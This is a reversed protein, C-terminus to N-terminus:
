FVWGPAQINMLQPSDIAGRAGAVSTEKRLLQGRASRTAVISSLSGLSGSRTIILPQSFSKNLTKAFTANAINFVTRSGIDMHVFDTDGTAFLSSVMTLYVDGDLTQIGAQESGFRNGFVCAAMTINGSNVVMWRAKPINTIFICGTIRLAADECILGGRNDFNVSTISGTTRGNESRYFVASRELEFFVSDSVHFDDCRGSRIGEAAGDNYVSRQAKTLGFPWVHLKSIKVSDLAGDIWIAKDFASIELDDITAGGSNGRMDLAIRAREIRLRSLKFRPVARASIASPYPLLRARDAVDPQAFRIAIDRLEGGPEPGKLEIVGASSSSFEHDVLLACSRAGAGQLVQGSGVVLGRTLRFRGAGADVSRGTALAAEFASTDDTIGDGRAGFEFPSVFGASVGAGFGRPQQASVPHAVATAVGALLLARRDLLKCNM